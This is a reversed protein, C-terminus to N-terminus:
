RYKRHGIVTSLFFTVCMLLALHSIEPQFAILYIDELLEYALGCVLGVGLTIAAAELYVQRHLEDLGLVQRRVALIMGVGAGINILVTILTPLLEFNWFTARPGFTAVGLTIVWGATWGKVRRVKEINAVEWSSSDPKVESMQMAEKDNLLSFM